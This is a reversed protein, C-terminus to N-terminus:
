IGYKVCFSEVWDGHRGSERIAGVVAQITVAVTRDRLEEPVFTRLETFLGAGDDVTRLFVPSREDALLVFHGHKELAFLCERFFQYHNALQCKPGESLPGRLFRHKELLTWYTRGKEAHLPCDNLNAAPNGGKCAKNKYLSCGGFGEETLKAEVFLTHTSDRPGLVLDISTPQSQRENFVERDEFEFEGSLPSDPWPVGAAEFAPRMAQLDDRVILPGVLNFLMAQSSLGHYVYKHLAFGSDSGERERMVRKIYDVVEDLIINDPWDDRSQLMYPRDPQVRKNNEAFWRASSDRLQNRYKQYASYNMLGIYCHPTVILPLPIHFTSIGGRIM